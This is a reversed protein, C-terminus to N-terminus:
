SDARPPELVSLPRPAREDMKEPIPPELSLEEVPPKDLRSDSMGLMPPELPLESEELLPPRGSRDLRSPPPEEEDLPRPASDERMGLMPLPEDVPEPMPASDERMGLEPLLPRLPRELRPVRCSPADVVSFPTVLLWPQWGNVKMKARPLVSIPLM